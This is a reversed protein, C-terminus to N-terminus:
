MEKKKKAVTTGVAAEITSVFQTDDDCGTRSCGVNNGGHLIRSMLLAKSIAVEPRSPGTRTSKSFSTM